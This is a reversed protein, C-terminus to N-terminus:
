VNPIQRVASQDRNLDLDLGALPSERFFESLKQPHLIKQYDAYALVIVTEDGSKTIMQPGHSLAENIVEGLNEEAESRQWIRTM